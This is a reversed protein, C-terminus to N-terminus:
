RAASGHSLPRPPPVGPGVLAYLGRKCGRGLAWHRVAARAAGANPAPPSTTNTHVVSFATSARHYELDDPARRPDTQDPRPSAVALRSWADDPAGPLPVSTHGNGGTGDATDLHDLQVENAHQRAPASGDPCRAASQANTMTNSGIDGQSERSPTDTSAAGPLSGPDIRSLRHRLSAASSAPLGDEPPRTGTAADPQTSSRGAGGDTALHQPERRPGVRPAIRGAPEWSSPAHACLALSGALPIPTAALALAVSPDSDQLQAIERLKSWLARTGPTDPINVSDEQQVGVLNRPNEESRVDAGHAARGDHLGEAVGPVPNMSTPSQRASATPSDTASLAERLMDRAWLVGGSASHGSSTRSRPSNQLNRQHSRGFTATAGDSTRSSSPSRQSGHLAGSLTSARLQGHLQPTASQRGSLDRRSSSTPPARDAGPGIGLVNPQTQHVEPRHRQSTGDHARQASSVISRERDTGGVVMPAFDTTTAVISDDSSM